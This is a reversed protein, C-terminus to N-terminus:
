QGAHAQSAGHSKLRDYATEEHKFTASFRRGKKVNPWRITYDKGDIGECPGMSAMLENKAQQLECEARKFAEHAVMYDDALSDEDGMPPRSSRTVQPFMQALARGADVTGGPPPSLHKQVYNFWFDEAIEILRAELAMDRTLTFERYELGQYGALLVALDCRDVDLVAMQWRCQLNYEEPVEDGKKGWRKVQPYSAATKLELPWSEGGCHVIRDPSCIMWGREPHRQMDCTTVMRDPHKEFYRAALDDELMNGWYQAESEEQPGDEGWKELAVRVPSKYPSLGVIAALDSAGVGTRRVEIQEPTLSM